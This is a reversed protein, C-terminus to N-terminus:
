QVACKGQKRKSTQKKPTERLEREWEITYQAREKTDPDDAGLTQRSMATCSRMIGLAEDPKNDAKLVVAYSAMVQLTHPNEEGYIRHCVEVMEGYLRAAQRMDHQEYLLMGLGYMTKLTQPSELGLRRKSTEFAQTYLKSAEGSKGERHLVNALIVTVETFTDDESAHRETCLGLLQHCLDKAETYREQQILVTVLADVCTARVSLNSNETHELARLIYSEAEPLQGMKGVLMGISRLCKALVEEQSSDSEHRREAIGLLHQYIALCDDYRELRMLISGLCKESELTDPHEEGLHYKAEVWCRRHLTESKRVESQWRMFYSAQYLLYIQCLKSDHNRPERDFALEVHPYLRRWRPLMKSITEPLIKPLASRLSQLSRSSWEDWKGHSELWKRASLQVLPHMELDDTDIKAALLHFSFLTFIDSELEVDTSMDEAIAEPKPSTSPLATIKSSPTMDEPREPRKMHLLMRPISRHDFFSMLSLRDAASPRIERVHEFSIQWTTIVSNSAEQDRRLENFNAKLLSADSKNTEKVKTLYSTISCPPVTSQIYASAQSIALPMYDLARVLNEIDETHNERETRNRFLCAADAKDMPGLTIVDCLDLCLSAVKRNRSTLITQGHTPVFLYDIPRKMARGPTTDDGIEVCSYLVDEIDANDLVLLWQSGSCRLWNGFIQFINVQPKNRRPLNLIDAMEHVSAKLRTSSSAHLWFVWHESSREQLRHCYEIALQTKSAITLLHALYSRLRM